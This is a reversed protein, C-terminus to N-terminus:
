VISGILNKNSYDDKFEKKDCIANISGLYEEYLAPILKFRKAKNFALLFLQNLSKNNNTIYIDENIKLLDSYQDIFNCLIYRNEYHFDLKNLAGFMNLILPEFFKVKSYNLAKFYQLFQKRKLSQKM